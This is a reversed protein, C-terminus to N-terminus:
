KRVQFRLMHKQALEPPIMHNMDPATGRLESMEPRGRGRSLRRERFLASAAVPATFFASSFPAISVSEIALTDNEPLFAALNSDSPRATGVQLLRLACTM